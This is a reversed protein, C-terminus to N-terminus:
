CFTQPVVICVDGPMRSGITEVVCNAGSFFIIIIIEELGLYAMPHNEHALSRILNVM